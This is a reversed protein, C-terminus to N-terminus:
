QGNDFVMSERVPLQGAKIVQELEKSDAASIHPPERMAQRISVPSGLIPSAKEPEVIVQVVCGEAYPLPEELEIIKGKAIGRTQM